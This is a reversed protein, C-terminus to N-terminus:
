KITIIKARDADNLTGIHKEVAEIQEGAMKRMDIATYDTSKLMHSDISKNFKKLDFTGNSLADMPNMIDISKGAYKGSLGIVDGGTEGQKLGRVGGLADDLIGATQAEAERMPKKTAFDVTGRFKEIRKNLSLGKLVESISHATIGTTKAALWAGGGKSPIVAAVDLAGIAIDKVDSLVGQETRIKFTRDEKYLQFNKGLDKNTLNPPISMGYKEMAVRIAGGEYNDTIEWEGIRLLVNGLGDVATNWINVPDVMEQYWEEEKGDLDIFAIPKNGAFQYPTYWPYGKTLPDVSLFRGLAPNYIRFGYDYTTTSSTEKDLEKGNFGYRYKTNAQSYKRGPLLSGFPAYDNATVVDATYYDIIGDQPAVDVGIKKDSM